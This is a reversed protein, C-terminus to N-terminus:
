REDSAEYLASAAYINIIINKAVFIFKNLLIFSSTQKNIQKM